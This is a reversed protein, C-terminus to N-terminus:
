AKRTIQKLEAVEDARYPTGDTRFVDHFWPNPEAEYPRQWSDWPLHTQSKGQVLGWCYAGVNADRLVPLCTEFTSGPGRAMYETCFMPRGYRSLQEIRQKLAPASEYNHFSVVDSQEIQVREHPKLLEDKSWDGLWIGSTLPQEPKASRAWAFAKALLPTVIEAKYAGLDRPGYSAGNSNDPENWLDWVHIRPDDRFRSVFDTIYGELADFRAPDRLVAVGPSQVWGSNHVGPEPPRQTGLTPFPHWVSDFFVPMAGIGHKRAIELFSEFRALYDDSDQQWVLDHLFVRVSNFGIAAAWGLERDITQLDFTERQWMELQNIAYSPAYNCGVLWGVRDHWAKAKETSWRGDVEPAQDISPASSVDASGPPTVEVEVPAAKKSSASRSRKKPAPKSNV